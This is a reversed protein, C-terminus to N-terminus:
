ADLLMREPAEICEKVRVLFSVAERGDIIRHDYSLAVYMMPRAEIGGGPMVMPRQQIKHMGLIAVQPPNIIPTSLLSGFTGGNTISFTGGQLEDIALKGDRARRGLDGIRKEIDALSAQDADRIVPVVLGQDTSVAVGIDYYHKYVIEDGDIEANTAPYARLAEICAKVFFGMFGLKVGHRKSFSDQYRERLAMVAGMDCENFTTLMAATNQAEKLREAIRKRLRTMRVREERGAPRAAPAPTEAKAPTQAPAPALRAAPPPQAPKAEAALVDGKTVNGKPGTAAVQRLDLGKEEAIKRAAPGAQDAGDGRHQAVEQNAAATEATEPGSGQNLAKEEPEDRLDQGGGAPAGEGAEIRGLITGVGVDSGEDALVEAL